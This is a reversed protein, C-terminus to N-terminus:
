RQSKRKPSSCRFRAEAGPIMTQCEDQELESAGDRKIQNSSRVIGLMQLRIGHAQIVCHRTSLSLIRGDLLFLGRVVITSSRASALRSSTTCRSFRARARAVFVADKTRLYVIDIQLTQFLYKMYIKCVIWSITSASARSKV